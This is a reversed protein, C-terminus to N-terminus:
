RYKATKIDVILLIQSKRVYKMWTMLYTTLHDIYISGVNISRYNNEKKCFIAYNENLDNFPNIQKSEM